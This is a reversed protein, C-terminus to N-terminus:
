TLGLLCGTLGHDSVCFFLLRFFVVVVFRLVKISEIRERELLCIAFAVLLILAAEITPSLFDNADNMTHIVLM